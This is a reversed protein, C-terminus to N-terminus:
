AGQVQPAPLPNIAFEVKECMTITKKNHCDSDFWVNMWISFFVCDIMTDGVAPSSDIWNVYSMPTTGDSNAV